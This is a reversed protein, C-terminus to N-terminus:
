RSELVLLDFPQRCRVHLWLPRELTAGACCDFVCKNVKHIAATGVKLRGGGSFAYHPQAARFLQTM